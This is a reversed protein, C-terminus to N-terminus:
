ATLCSLRLSQSVGNPNQRIGRFHASGSKYLPFTADVTTNQTAVWWHADAGTLILVFRAKDPFASSHALTGITVQDKDLAPEEPAPIYRGDADKAAREYFILDVTAM